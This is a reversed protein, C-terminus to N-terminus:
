IVVGAAIALPAKSKKPEEHMAGFMPKETPIPATHYMADQAAPPPTDIYPAVNLKLEKDRDLAESEMEKKLLNSLYFALNFTTASYKGSAALAAIAQKMDNMSAYRSNPDPDLSKTLIARIDDPLASGAATRAAGVTQAFASSTAADPPEVGTVLLYLIAGM